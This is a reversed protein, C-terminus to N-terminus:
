DGISTVSNPITISELSECDKFANNGISTVSDPIIISQLSSCENFAYKDISIVSDPIDFHNLKELKCEKGNIIKLNKPTEFSNLTENM